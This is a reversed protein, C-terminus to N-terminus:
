PVPDYGSGGWPNCRCIRKIALWTGKIPGHKMIAEVAYHSCTPTYRCMPPTLPSIFHQYFKIPLILTWVLMQRVAHLVHRWWPKSEKIVPESM